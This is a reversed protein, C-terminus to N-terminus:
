QRVAAMMGTRIPAWVRTFFPDDPEVYYEVRGPVAEEDEGEGPMNSSRLVFTNVVFSEIDAFVGGEGSRSDVMQIDLDRYAVWVTGGASRGDVEIDFRLAELRGEQVEIGELPVTLASVRQLDVGGVKGDMRMVMRDVDLPIELRIQAPAGFVEMTSTLVIPGGGPQNSIGLIRGDLKEFAIHAPAAVEREPLERFDIRGRLRVSDVHLRGPFSEVLTHPLWPEGGSSGSPLRRNLYVDVDASDLAISRASFGGRPWLAFDFGRGEIRPLVARIRDEADELRRFFEEDPVTPELRVGAFVFSSDRASARMSDFSVRTLGDSRVRTFSGTRWALGDRPGVLRGTRDFGLDRGDVELERILVRRPGRAAKRRWVLVTADGIKLEGIRIAPEPDGAGGGSRREEGRPGEPDREGSVAAGTDPTAPDPHYYLLPRAVTATGLKPSRRGTALALLPLGDIVVGPSAVTGLGPRSIVVNSAELRRSLPSFTVDDLSVFTTDGGLASTLRDRIFAEDVLFRGAAELVVALASLGALGFILWRAARKGNGM